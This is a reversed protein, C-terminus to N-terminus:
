ILVLYIISMYFNIVHIYPRKSKMSARIVAFGDVHYNTLSKKVNIHAETFNFLRELQKKICSYGTQHDRQLEETLDIRM